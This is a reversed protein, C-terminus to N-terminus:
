PLGRQPSMEASSSCLFFVASERVHEDSERDELMDHALAPVAGWKRGPEAEGPM